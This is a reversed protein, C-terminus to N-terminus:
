KTDIYLVITLVSICWYGHIRHVGWYTYYYSCNLVTKDEFDNSCSCLSKKTVRCHVKWEVKWDVRNNCAIRSRIADSCNPIGYTISGYHFENYASRTSVHGARRRDVRTYPPGPTCYTRNEIEESGVCSQKQLM